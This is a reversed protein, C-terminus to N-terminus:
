FRYRHLEAAAPSRLWARGGDLDTDLSGLLAWFRASHNMEVLHAAEHAAVYDLVFPPAMVLRWSFMLRGDASCSGWRSRTDRLRIDRIPRDLARAHREAADLLRARAEEMLWAKLRARFRVGQGPVLVTDGDQVVRRGTGPQLRQPRGAFPLLVGPEIDVPGPREALKEALWDSKDALFARLSATPTHPPATLYVGEGGHAVRLTLHRATKRRRVEITIEPCDLALREGM